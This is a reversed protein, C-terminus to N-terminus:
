LHEPRKSRRRFRSWDVHWLLAASIVAAMAAGLFLEDENWNWHSQMQLVFDLEPVPGVALAAAVAVSVATVAVAADNM